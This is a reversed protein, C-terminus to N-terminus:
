RVQDGRGILARPQLYIGTSVLDELERTKSDCPGVMMYSVKQGSFFFEQVRLRLDVLKETNERQIECDFVELLKLPCEEGYSELHEGFILVEGSPTPSRQELDDPHVIKRIRFPKYNM